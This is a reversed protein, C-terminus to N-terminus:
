GHKFKKQACIQQAIKDPASAIIGIVKGQLTTVSNATAYYSALQNNLKGANDASEAYKVKDPNQFM